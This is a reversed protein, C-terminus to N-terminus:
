TATTVFFNTRLALRTHAHPAVGHEAMGWRAEGLEVSSNQKEENRQTNARRCLFHCALERTLKKTKSPRRHGSFSLTSAILSRSHSAGRGGGKRTSVRRADMAVSPDITVIVLMVVM